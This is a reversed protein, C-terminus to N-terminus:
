NLDSESFYSLKEALYENLSLRKDGQSSNDVTEGGDLSGIVATESEELHVLLPNRQLITRTKVSSTGTEPNEFTDPCLDTSAITM